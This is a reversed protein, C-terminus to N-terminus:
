ANRSWVSSAHRTVDVKQFQEVLEPYHEFLFLLRGLVFVLTVRLLHASSASYVQDFIKLWEGDVDVLKMVGSCKPVSGDGKSGEFEMVWPQGAEFGVSIGNAELKVGATFPFRNEQLPPPEGPASPSRIEQAWKAASAGSLEIATAIKYSASFAAAQTVDALGESVVGFAV